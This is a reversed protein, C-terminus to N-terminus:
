KSDKNELDSTSNSKKKKRKKRKKKPVEESVEQSLTTDTLVSNIEEKEDSLKKINTSQPNVKEKLETVKVLSVVNDSDANNKEIFATEKKSIKKPKNEQTNTMKGKNDLDRANMIYIYSVKTDIIYFVAEEGPISEYFLIPKEISDRVNILDDFTDIMEIRLSMTYMIEKTNTKTSKRSIYPGYDKFIKRIREQYKVKPDRNALYSVIEYIMLAITLIITVIGIGFLIPRVISTKGYEFVQNSNNTLDYNVKIDTMDMKLPIIFSVVAKDNLKNEFKELTGEVEVFLSVILNAKASIGYEDIFSSALHNYKNYDIKIKESIAFKKDQVNKIISNDLLIEEQEFVKKDSSGEIEVKASIYYKYGLNINEVVNFNYNFSADIYDILNSIYVKDKPLYPTTYFNNAKLYVNYDLNSSDSYHMVFEAKRKISFVCLIIAAIVFLIGIFSIIIIQKKTKSKRINKKM